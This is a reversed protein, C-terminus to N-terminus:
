FPTKWDRKTQKPINFFSHGNDILINDRIWVHHEIQELHAKVTNLDKLTYVTEYKPDKEQKALERDVIESVAQNKLEIAKEVCANRAKASVM